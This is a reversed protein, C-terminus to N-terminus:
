SASGVENNPEARKSAEIERRPSRRDSEDETDAKTNRTNIPSSVSSTDRKRKSGPDYRQMSRRRKRDRGGRSSSRLPSRYRRRPPTQSRSNSRTLRRDDREGRRAGTRTEAADAM